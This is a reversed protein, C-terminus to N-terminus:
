EAAARLWALALQETLQDTEDPLPETDLDVDSDGQAGPDVFPKGYYAMRIDIDGRSGVRYIRDALHQNGSNAVGGALAPLWDSELVAAALQEQAIGHVLVITAM